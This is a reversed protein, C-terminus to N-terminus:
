KIHSIDNLLEIKAMKQIIELLSSNTVTSYTSSLSRIQRFISECPQSGLMEALCLHDLKREKLYLMLIVFSHSNIEVCHYCNTSIFHDKMTYNKNSKIHAKWIRLIFNSFWLHRLRELPMLRFDLFARLISSIVRLYLVTGENGDVSALLDIVKDDCIRLVSDFNQRDKPKVNSMCLNHKNKTFVQILSVLHNVSIIHKGFKLTGNLLRNRFKTGIHIPDQIPIYDMKSWDANFWEPFNSLREQNEALKLQQRMVLNFKPDSDSSFTAVEINIKRLENAIFSWRKAVDNSTYKSDTGFILLCFPPSGRILPQAMVVNVYSATTNENGTQIDYFHEEIEAASRALYSRPMPMGTEKDLPLVFGILQNTALDYQIRNTIKTADESLSVVKPVNHDNLYKLLEESRLVGEMYNSKTESIYRDVSRINPVSHVANAKFTEYSLRGGIIRM